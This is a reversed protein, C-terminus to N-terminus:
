SLDCFNTLEFIGVTSHSYNLALTKWNGANTNSRECFNRGVAAVGGWRTRESLLVGSMRCNTVMMGVEQLPVVSTTEVTSAWM